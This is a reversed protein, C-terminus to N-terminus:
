AYTFLLRRPSSKGKEHLIGLYYDVLVYKLDITAVDDLEENKSILSLSGLM